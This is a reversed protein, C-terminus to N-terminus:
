EDSQEDHQRREPPRPVNVAIPVPWHESDGIGHIHSDLSAREFLSELPSGDGRDLTLSYNHGVAIGHFHFVLFEAHARADSLLHRLDYPGGRLRLAAEERCNELDEARLWLEFCPGGLPHPGPGAAIAIWTYTPDGYVSGGPPSGAGSPTHEPAFCLLEVRRDARCGSSRAVKSEPWHEGCGLVAPSTWVLRARLAPLGGITVGLRAALDQEYMRFFGLWDAREFAAGSGAAVGFEAQVRERFHSRAAATKPGDKDDANGPDCAWGFRSAIWRLVEQGDAVEGHLMAHDAFGDADGECALKVSAARLKSLELNDAFSGVADTHGAALVQRPQDLRRLHALLGAILAIGDAHDGALQGEATPGPLMVARGTSFNFDGLALWEVARVPKTTPEDLAADFQNPAADAPELPAESRAYTHGYIPTAPQDLAIVRLRGREVTRLLEAILSADDALASTIANRRYWAALSGRLMWDDRLRARLLSAAHGHELGDLAGWGLVFRRWGDTFEFPERPWHPHRTVM